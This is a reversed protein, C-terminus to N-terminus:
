SLDSRCAARRDLEACVLAGAIRLQADRDGEHKALIGWKDGMSVRNETGHLLIEAAKLVLEENPHGADHQADYKLRQKAREKAVASLGPLRMAAAEAVYLDLRSDVQQLQGLQKACQAAWKSDNEVYDAKWMTSATDAGHRYGFWRGILWAIGMVVLYGIFQIATPEPVQRVEYCAESGPLSGVCWVKLERGTPDFIDLRYAAPQVLMDLPVTEGQHAVAGWGGAEPDQVPPALYRILGEADRVVYIGVYLQHPQESQVEVADNVITVERASASGCAAILVCLATLAKEIVARAAALADKLVLATDKTWQKDFHVSLEFDIRVRQETQKSFRTDHLAKEQENLTDRLKKFTEGKNTRISLEALEDDTM